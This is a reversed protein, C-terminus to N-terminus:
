GTYGVSSLYNEADQGLCCRITTFFEPWANNFYGDVLRTLGNQPTYSKQRLTKKRREIDFLIERRQRALRGCNLNLVDITAQLKSADISAQACSTLNPKLYCTSKDFEFLNPFAPIDLASVDIAKDGKAADCSLNAPLPTEQSGQSQGGDCVALLNSWDLHWNHSNSTTASKPYVHEVGCRHPKTADIKCECYACLGHQEAITQARCDQYAQQGQHLADNRMEDWTAAPNASRFSALKQPETGKLVRKM